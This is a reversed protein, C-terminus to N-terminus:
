KGLRNRLKLLHQGTFKIEHDPFLHQRVVSRIGDGGIVLDAFVETGNDFHLRVRGDRVKQLSALRHNLRVVGKPVQAILSAQLRTRRVRRSLYQPPLTSKASVTVVEGTLGNRYIDFYFLDADASANRHQYCAMM